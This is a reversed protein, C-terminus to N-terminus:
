NPTGTHRALTVADMLTVGEVTRVSDIANVKATDTGYGGLVTDPEGGSCQEGFYSSWWSELYDDGGNGNMLTADCEDDFLQDPGPGGYIRDHGFGGLM